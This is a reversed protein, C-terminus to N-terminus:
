GSPTVTFGTNLIDFNLYKTAATNDIANAVGEAPPSNLSTATIPDGPRTVDIALACAAAGLIGAATLLQQRSAMTLEERCSFAAGSGVPSVRAVSSRREAELRSCGRRVSRLLRFYWRGRRAVLFFVRFVPTRCPRRM